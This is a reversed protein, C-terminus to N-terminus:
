RRDGYRAREEARRRDYEEMRRRDYSDHYMAERKREYGEIDRNHPDRRYGDRAPERDYRSSREEYPDREYGRRERHPSRERREGRSSYRESYDRSEMKVNKALNDSSGRSTHDIMTPKSSKTASQSTSTTPASTAPLGLAAAATPDIGLGAPFETPLGGAVASGPMGPLAPLGPLGPLGPIGTPLGPLGPMGPLPGGSMIAQLAANAAAEQLPDVVQQAQKTPDVTGIPAPKEVEAPKRMPEPDKDAYNPRKVRNMLHRASMPDLGARIMRQRECYIRWTDEDFGYNFYDSADAGPQKWPKEEDLMDPDYVSHASDGQVMVAPAKGTTPKVITGVDKPVVIQGQKDTTAPQSNMLNVLAPVDKNSTIVDIPEDDSDDSEDDSDENNINHKTTNPNETSQNNETDLQTKGENQTSTTDMSSPLTDFFNLWFEIMKLRIWKHNRTARM